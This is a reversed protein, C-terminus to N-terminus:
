FSCPSQRQDEFRFLPGDGALMEGRHEMLLRYMTTFGTIVEEVHDLASAEVGDLSPRNAEGPLEIRQRVYRMVDTGEDALQPVRDPSLQGAEGGLGSIDIGAYDDVSWLRQPLMGVVLVSQLMAQAAAMDAETGDFRDFNPNFLTELDILMPHEGAAILNELHFDSANIAYLLALYAGLRQYFREVEDVSNCSQHEVYEVWGYESRELVTLTRLPPGCGCSNLWTLLEQFHADIALSKPKYVVQFGSEFRAIMVSRGGRHADGAGGVLEVLVGPDRDLSFCGRVAEWDSCLRDLFEISVEAWQSICAALQRALVPYEALIAIAAEPQRLREIFSQFRAEPTDGALYDQLRAVNLELVMARGLRILLPDPLNMLLVDEVTEPDFPLAPWKDALAAVRAHLRDCAQDILPQVLELFGLVEEGPPPSAFASAPQAYAEALAVLWAPLPSLREHLSEVPEGLIHALRAEDIGDLALRQAFFLDDSFPPQSRWRQLRQRGLEASHNRHPSSDRDGSRTTIREALTWAHCWTPSTFGAPDM